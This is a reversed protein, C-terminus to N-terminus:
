AHHYVLWEASLVIMLAILLYIWIEMPVVLHKADDPIVTSLKAQMQYSNSESAALAVFTNYDMQETTTYEGYENAYSRYLRVIYDGPEDFVIDTDTIREIINDEHKKRGVFSVTQYTVDEEDTIKKIVEIGITGAPLTLHMSDGVERIEGETPSFTEMCAFKRILNNLLLTYELSRTLSSSYMTSIVVRAHTDRNKGALFVPELHGNRECSLIDKYEYTRFETDREVLSAYSLVKVRDDEETSEKNIFNLGKIINYYEEDRESVVPVLTYGKREEDIITEGLDVELEEPIRPPNLLWTTGDSPMREPLIGVFIYVNYGEYKIKSPAFGGGAVKRNEYGDPTLSSIRVVQRNIEAASLAIPLFEDYHSEAFVVEVRLRSTEKKHIVYSNDYSLADTQTEISIHANKFDVVEGSEGNEFTRFEISTAEGDTCYVREVQERVGDVYLAVLLVADKGYSAVNGTFKFAGNTLQEVELGLAAANWERKNVLVTKVNELTEYTTDTFFIIKANANERLIDQAITMAGAVDAPGWGCEIDDLSNSIIYRETVRSDGMKVATDGASILTMPHQKDVDKALARVQEKARELRTVGNSDTTMMSSSADVIAIIEGSGDTNITPRAILLVALTLVCIQLLLLLINKINFPIRKKVRAFARKWLFTSSVVEERHRRKIIYIIILIPIGILGILAWPNIFSM